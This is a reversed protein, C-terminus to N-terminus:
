ESTHPRSSHGAGSQPVSRGRRANHRLDNAVGRRWEVDGSRVLRSERESCRLTSRDHDANRKPKWPRSGGFSHKHTRVVGRGAATGAADQRPKAKSTRSRSGLLPGASAQSRAEHDAPVERRLCARISQGTQMDRPAQRQQPATRSREGHKHLGAGLVDLTPGLRQERVDRDRPRTSPRM